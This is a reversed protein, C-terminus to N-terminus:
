ISRVPNEFNNQTFLGTQRGLLYWEKAFGNLFFLTFSLGLGDITLKEFHLYYLFILIIYHSDYCGTM